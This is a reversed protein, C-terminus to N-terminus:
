NVVRVRNGSSKSATWMKYLADVEERTTCQMKVTNLFHWLVNECFAIKALNRAYEELSEMTVELDFM